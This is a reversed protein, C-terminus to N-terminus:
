ANQICNVVANGLMTFGTDTFHPGGCQTINCTSYGVGCYNTIISHLDCTRVHFPLKQLVSQAAANYALVNTEIRGPLLVCSSNPNTPVPTITNWIIKASPKINKYLLNFFSTLLVTYNQLSIHENDPYALDHLGFNVTIYDWRNISNSSLWDLLCLNGWNTNGANGPTHIVEMINHLANTVASQYGLSISDGILLVQPLATNNNGNYPTCSQTSCGCIGSENYQYDLTCPIGGPVPLCRPTTTGLCTDEATCGIVSSLYSSQVHYISFSSILIALSLALLNSYSM